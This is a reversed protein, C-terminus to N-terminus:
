GLKLEEQIRSLQRELDTIREYFAVIARDKAEGSTGGLSGIRCMWQVHGQVRQGLFEIRQLRAEMTLPPDHLLGGGLSSWAPAASLSATANRTSM